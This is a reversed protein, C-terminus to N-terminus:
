CVERALKLTGPLVWRGSLLVSCSACNQDKVIGLLASLLLCLIVHSLKYFTKPHDKDTHAM